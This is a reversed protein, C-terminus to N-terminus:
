DPVSDSVPSVYSIDPNLTWSQSTLLPSHFYWTFFSFLFYWLIHSDMFSFLFYVLSGLPNYTMRFPESIPQSMLPRPKAESLCPSNPSSGHCIWLWHWSQPDSILTYVPPISLILYLFLVPLMHSDTFSFLFYVSLGLPDSTMGFPKLCASVDSVLTLSWLSMPLPPCVMVSIYSSAITLCYVHSPVELYFVTQHDTKSEAAIFQLLRCHDM